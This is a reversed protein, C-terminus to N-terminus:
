WPLGRVPAAAVEESKFRTADPNEEKGGGEQAFSAAPAFVLSLALAASAFIKIM